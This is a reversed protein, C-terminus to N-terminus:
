IDLGVRTGEWIADLARRPKQADGILHYARGSKKLYEELPNHAQYGVAVVVADVGVLEEIDGDTEVIVGHGTIEQCRTNTLLRVGYKKLNNLVFYKRAGGLDKALSKLMEVITVQKGQEALLEAAEVGVLGGGLVVVKEGAERSGMLIERALVVHDLDIGPIPPIIPKGGTAAIVVEPDIAEILEPTVETGLRIDVGEKQAWRGMQRAAEAIEGKRLGQGAVLFEGGLQDNKECLIVEHGRQGLTIAAQMGGPGGGAVLVRKSTQAPRLVYQAERGCAPNRLCSIPKYAYLRRDVCGQNCGICKVISDYDGARAKAAFEPDALQARGLGIFDAKGKALVEEATRPDNIRGAAILPVKVKARVAAANDVSFAIPVDLPPIVTQMSAYTGMSTSIADVGAQEMIEAIPITEDLTLGHPVEERASIRFILPYDEGVAERVAVVIERAFRARNELSGGYEDERQNASASLFQAILYGHAGHLEVADFGARRARDAAHAFDEVLGNIEGKTLEHPEERCVPCSIPSPALLPHGSLSSRTQRGAHWIQIASKGGARRIAETLRALGLMFSDDYIGLTNPAKSSESVASVEVINLACGGWARAVHFDVLRDTVMGAQDPLASGMAPLIIRNELHLSGIKKPSFLHPLNM